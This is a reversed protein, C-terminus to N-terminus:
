IPRSIRLYFPEREARLSKEGWQQRFSFRGWAKRLHGGKYSCKNVLTSFSLHCSSLPPPSESSGTGVVGYKGSTFHCLPTQRDLRPPVQLLLQPHLLRQRGKAARRQLLQRCRPRRARAPPPQSTPTLVVRGPELFCINSGCSVRDGALTTRCTEIGLYGESWNVAKCCVLFNSGEGTRKWNQYPEM